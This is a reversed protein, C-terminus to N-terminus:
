GVMKLIEDVDLGLYDAAERISVLQHSKKGKLEKIRRIVDRSYSESKGTNLSIDKPYIVLRRNKSMNNRNIQDLKSNNM